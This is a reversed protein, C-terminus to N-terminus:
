VNPNPEKEYAVYNRVSECIVNFKREKGEDLVTVEIEDFYEASDNEMEQCFEQAADEADVATVLKPDDKDRWDDCWCKYIQTM